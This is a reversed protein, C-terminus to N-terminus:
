RAHPADSAAMCVVPLLTGAGGGDVEVRLVACAASQEHLEKGHGGRNEAVTEAAPTDVVISLQVKEGPQLEGSWSGDLSMWEPCSDACLHYRGSKGGTNTIYATESLSPAGNLVVVIAPPDVALRPFPASDFSSEADAEIPSLPEAEIETDQIIEEKACLLSTRFLASVTYLDLVYLVTDYHTLFFLVLHRILISLLPSPLTSRLLSISNRFRGIETQFIPSGM